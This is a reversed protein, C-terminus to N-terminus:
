KAIDVARFERIVTVTIQGPYTLEDELKQKIEHSLKVTAEDDVTQPEVIVRIERGAQIAYAKDVGKFSTAVKEIDTLRRIYDEVAEHRAGPRAGSVSDAIHVIISEVRSFPEDEHHQAICDIVEQPFNWKKALEVGLQVHTGEKEMETKGIDHYLGGMTTVQYDAGIEEAIKKAIRATEISAILQNQGYSYRFKLRGLTDLAQQSINYLGVESAAKRGADSMDKGVQSRAKEVLQEIRSPQIRADKVLWELAMRAIERRIPDFSSLRVEGAVDSELEVDVGTALEFARINRGEKGIIRGKIEDSELKVTSVTYEAAWDTSGAMMSNVLIEKAKESAEAKIKEEAEKIRKAVEGKLEEELNSLILKRAEERTLSSVKSLKDVLESRTKTIEQERKELTKRGSEVQRELKTIQSLKSELSTEKQAVRNELDLIEQRIKRTEEEAAKKIRFAEDRADQIIERADKVAPSAPYGKDNGVSVVIKKPQKHIARSTPNQSPKSDFIGM